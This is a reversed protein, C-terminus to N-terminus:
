LLIGYKKWFYSSAAGRYAKLIDSGSFGLEAMLWRDMDDSGVGIWRCIDAFGLSPDMYVKEEEVLIYFLNFYNEMDASKMTKKIHLNTIAYSLSWYGLFSGAAKLWLNKEKKFM